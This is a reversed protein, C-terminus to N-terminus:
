GFIKLLGNRCLSFFSKLGGPVNLHHTMLIRQFKSLYDEYFVIEDVDDLSINGENLCYNIACHPFSSDGKKRSFREEQAAAIIKGGIILSAASDHYYASIGLIKKM